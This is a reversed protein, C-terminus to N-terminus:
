LSLVREEGFEAILADVRELLMQRRIVFDDFKGVDEPHNESTPFLVPRLTELEMWRIANITERSFRQVQLFHEQVRNMPNRYHEPHPFGAGNDIAMFQGNVWHCNAGLYPYTYRDWNNMLFDFVQMNSIQRLIDNTTLNESGHLEEDVTGSRAFFRTLLELPPEANLKEDSVEASLLPEWVENLEIAFPYFEPIWAKKTGHLWKEGNEEFYILDAYQEDFAGESIGYLDILEDRRIKVEENLPVNFGCRILPCLRYAAIESRYSSQLRNQHPKFAAVNVDGVKFKYTITTGGGLRSIRSLAAGGTVIAPEAAWFHERASVAAYWLKVFDPREIVFQEAGSWALLEADASRGVAILARGRLLENAASKEAIEFSTLASSVRAVDGAELAAGLNSRLVEVADLEGAATAAGGLLESASAVTADHEAADVAGSLAAAVQGPDASLAAPQPRCNSCAFLGPLLATGLLM